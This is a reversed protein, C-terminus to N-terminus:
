IREMMETERSWWFFVRQLYEQFVCQLFTVPYFYNTENSYTKPYSLKWDLRAFM